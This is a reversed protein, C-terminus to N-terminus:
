AARVISGELPRSHHHDITAIERAFAAEFAMAEMSVM